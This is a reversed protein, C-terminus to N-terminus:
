QKGDFSQLFLDILLSKLLENSQSFGTSIMNLDDISIFTDPDDFTLVNDKMVLLAPRDPNSVDVAVYPTGNHAIFNRNTDLLTFWSSSIKAQKYAGKIEKIISAKDSPRGVHEYLKQVFELILDACANFEFLLSNIDAILRYKITTDLRFAYGEREHSFIHGEDHTKIKEYLALCSENLRAVVHPLLNMRTAVHLGLSYTTAPPKQIRGQNVASNIAAYIQLVWPDGGLEELHIWRMIM